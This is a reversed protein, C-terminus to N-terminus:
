SSSHFLSVKRKRITRQLQCKEEKLSSIQSPWNCDNKKQRKSGRFFQGLKAEKSNQNKKLKVEKNFNVQNALISSRHWLSKSGGGSEGFHSKQCLKAWKKPKLFSPCVKHFQYCPYCKEKLTSNSSSSFLLESFKLIETFSTTYM